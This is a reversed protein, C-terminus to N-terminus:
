RGSMMRRRAKGTGTTHTMFPTAAPAPALRTSAQSTTKATSDARKMWAKLLIPSSGSAPPVQNRGRRTPEARAMPAASNPSATLAACASDQPNIQRTTGSAASASVSASTVAVSAAPGM